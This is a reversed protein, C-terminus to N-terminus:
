RKSSAASGAASGASGAASGTAASGNAASGNAAAHKARAQAIAQQVQEDTMGAHLEVYDGASGPLSPLDVNGPKPMASGKNKGEFGMVFTSVANGCP